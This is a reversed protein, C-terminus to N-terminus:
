RGPRRRRPSRRPATSPAGPRGATRRRGRDRALHALLDPREDRPPASTMLHMTVPRPGSGRCSAGAVDLEGLREHPGRDLLGRRVPTYTAACAWPVSPILTAIRAPTREISCPESMSSSPIAISTSVARVQDGVDVVAVPDVLLARPGAPRGLRHRLVVAVVWAWRSPNAFARPPRADPDGVAGVAADVRMPHHRDLEAVLDAQPLGRGLRDPRRREVAASIIPQSSRTPDSAGPRNASRTASSASGSTSM